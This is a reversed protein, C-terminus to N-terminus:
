LKNFTLLFGNELVTQNEIAKKVMARSMHLLGACLTISDYEGVLKDDLYAYVIKKNTSPKDYKVHRKKSDEGKFDEKALRRALLSRLRM